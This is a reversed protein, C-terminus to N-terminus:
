SIFMVSTVFKTYYPFSPLTFFTFPVFSIWTYSRLLNELISLMSAQMDAVEKSCMKMIIVSSHSALLQYPASMTVSSM